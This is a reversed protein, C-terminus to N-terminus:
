YKDLVEYHGLKLQSCIKKIARIVDIEHPYQQSGVRFSRFITVDEGPHIDITKTATREGSNSHDALRVLIKVGEEWRDGQDDTPFFGVYYAYSKPSQKTQVIDFKYSSVINIVNSVLYDFEELRDESYLESRKINKPHSVYTAAAVNDTEESFSLEIVLTHWKTPEKKMRYM